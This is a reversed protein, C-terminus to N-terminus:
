SPKEATWKRLMVIDGRRKGENYLALSEWETTEELPIHKLQRSPPNGVWGDLMCVGKTPIFDDPIEFTVKAM